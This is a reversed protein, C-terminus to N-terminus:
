RLNKILFHVFWLLLVEKIDKINHKSNKAINFAKDRLVKDSATTRALDKFDGYAKDHQFCVKDLENRYIYIYIDQIEQKQLNKFEKKAKLLHDM